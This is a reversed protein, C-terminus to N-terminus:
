DDWFLDIKFFIYLLLNGWAFCARKKLHLALCAYVFFLKYVSVENQITTQNLAVIGGRPILCNGRQLVQYGFSLCVM